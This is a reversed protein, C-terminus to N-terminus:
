VLAGSIPVGANERGAMERDDFSKSYVIPVGAAGCITKPSHSANGDVESKKVALQPAGTLDRFDHDDALLAFRL